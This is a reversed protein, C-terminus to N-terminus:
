RLSPDSRISVLQLRGRKPITKVNIAHVIPRGEFQNGGLVRVGDNVFDLFFAVHGQTPNLSGDSEVLAFVAIDGAHPKLEGVFANTTADYKLFSSGWTRFSGSSASKTPPSEGTINRSAQILCWNVFAACWPTEDGRPNSKIKEFFSVILPNAPANRPWARTFYRSKEGYKGAAVDLFYKAVLVPRTKTPASAIIARAIDWDEQPAPATGQPKTVFEFDQPDEFTLSQYKEPIPPLEVASFEESVQGCLQTASLTGAAIISGCVSRRSLTRFNPTKYLAKSEQSM